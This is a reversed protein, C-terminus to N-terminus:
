AHRAARLGVGVVMLVGVHGAQLPILRADLLLLEPKVFAISVHVVVEVILVFLGIVCAVVVVMDSLLFPRVLALSLQNTRVGWWDPLSERKGIVKLGGVWEWGRVSMSEKVSGSGEWQLGSVLMQDILQLM